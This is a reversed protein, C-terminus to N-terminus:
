DLGKQWQKYLDNEADAMVFADLIKVAKSDGQFPLTEGKGPDSSGSALCGYYAAKTKLKGNLWHSEIECLEGSDALNSVETTDLNRPLFYIVNQSAKRAVEFVKVGDLPPALMTRLVFKKVNSYAPGGWPPSLFVADSSMTPLLEMADGLIFEMKDAVGYVTANARAARLAEPNKDICIVLRSQASFHVVNGGCGCFPDIVINCKARKARLAIHIAIAEPTVSFWDDGSMIIGEDFRSWYRYRQAWYKSNISSHPSQEFVQQRQGFWGNRKKSISRQKGGKGKWNGGGRCGRTNPSKRRKKTLGKGGVMEGEQFDDLQLTQLDKMVHIARSDDCSLLPMGDIVRGISGVPRTWTLPVSEDPYCLSVKGNEELRIFNLQVHPMPPLVNKTFIKGVVAVRWSRKGLYFAELTIGERVDELRIRDCDSDPQMKELTGNNNLSDSTEDCSNRISVPTTERRILADSCMSQIADDVICASVGYMWEITARQRGYVDDELKVHTEKLM